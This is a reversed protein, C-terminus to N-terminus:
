EIKDDPRLAGNQTAALIVITLIENRWHYLTSPSIHFQLAIATNTGKRRYRSSPRDLRYYTAFFSEKVPDTKAFHARASNIAKVWATCSVRDLKGGAEWVRQLFACNDRYRFLEREAIRKMKKIDM